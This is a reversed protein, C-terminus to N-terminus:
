RITPAYRPTAQQEHRWYAIILLIIILVQM